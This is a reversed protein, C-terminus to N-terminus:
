VSEEVFVKRYKNEYKCDDEEDAVKWRKTLSENVINETIHWVVVRRAMAQTDADAANLLDVRGQIIWHIWPCRHIVSNTVLRDDQIDKEMKAVDYQIGFLKMIRPEFAADRYRCGYGSPRAVEFLQKVENITLPIGNRSTLNFDDAAYVKAKALLGKTTLAGASDLEPMVVYFEGESVVTHIRSLAHIITTKGKGSPGAFVASRRRKLPSMPFDKLSPGQLITQTIDCWYSCRQKLHSQPLMWLETEAGTGLDGETVRHVSGTASWIQSLFTDLYKKYIHIAREFSSALKNKVKFDIEKCNRLFICVVFVL